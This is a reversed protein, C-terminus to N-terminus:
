YYPSEVTEFDGGAEFKVEMFRKPIVTWNNGHVMCFFTKKDRLNELAQKPDLETLLEAEFVKEKDLKISTKFSDMLQHGVNIFFDFELPQVDM